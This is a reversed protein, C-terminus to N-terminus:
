NSLKQYVGACVFECFTASCSPLTSPDYDLPSIASSIVIKRTFYSLFYDPPVRTTPQSTLYLTSLLLYFKPHTCNRSIVATFYSPHIFYSYRVEPKVAQQYTKLCKKWYNWQVGAAGKKWENQVKRCEQRLSCTVTNSKPKLNEPKLPPVFNLMDSYTYNCKSFLEESSLSSPAPGLQLHAFLNFLYLKM